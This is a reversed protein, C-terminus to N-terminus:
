LLSSCEGDACDVDMREAAAVVPVSIPHSSSTPTPALMSTQVPSTSQQLITHPSVLEEESDTSDDLSDLRGTQGQLRSSDCM